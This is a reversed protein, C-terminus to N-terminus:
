IPETFPKHRALRVCRIIGVLLGGIAGLCTGFFMLGMAVYAPADAPDNPGQRHYSVMLYLGVSFGGSLGVGAGVLISTVFIGIYASIKM